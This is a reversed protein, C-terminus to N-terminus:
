GIVRLKINRVRVNPGGFWVPVGQMPEGKGCTGAYFELNRDAADVSSYFTKTTLELVPNRVLGKLEGNEILYAELGGYRQSWREDDINWEMYSKIYVGYKVDELLEEFTYDGPKFYTNAMRVIPEGEHNMARAAANSHTGFLKATWRNHLFENIVGNKYLYRPRAPVGEDDYLYFGNSGPITPDDIVTAYESGIREGLMNPKIFSKGAQAAERGMIRDAESPHGCSEHVMLGVIESGVIVDVPRDVPPSKAELLIKEFTKVDEPLYEHVKWADVLEYGGSAAHSFFRQITGKSPLTVVVNYGLSVRPVRSKVYAGDSNVVIKEEVSEGYFSTLTAVRATSIAGSVLKWLEQHYRTKEQFDVDRPSKKEVAEYTVRGLREDSFEIPRKQLKAHAKAKKYAKEVAGTVGEPTLVSTSAFGLSGDVIVRIAIGQSFSKEVGIVEGNRSSLGSRAILHYRAEVYSAGLAEGHSVAKVVLDEYQWSM